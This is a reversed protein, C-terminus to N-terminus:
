KKFEKLSYTSPISMPFELDQDFDSRQFNMDLLHSDNGNQVNIMRSTSVRQNNMLVYAAYEIMAQQGHGKRAHLQSSRITSDSKNYTIFQTYSSDEVQLSWADASTTVKTINGDRLPEGVVLRQLFSFDVKAPLVKATENLSIRTVESQMQNVFIFSDPTIYIRGVQVMGGLGTIAIWILSDKRIRFHATFEQKEEPGEYRVKAKGSFTKYTFRSQWLPTFQDILKKMGALTDNAAVVTDPQPFIFRRENGAIHNTDTQASAQGGGKSPSDGAHKHVFCSSFTGTCLLLWGICVLRNMFNEKM